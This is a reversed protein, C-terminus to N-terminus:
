STPTVRLMTHCATCMEEAPWKAAGKEIKLSAGCQPCVSQGGQSMREQHYFYYGAAPGALLLLPVLIFHLIPIFVAIIAAGWCMGGFKFARRLREQRSWEVVTVTAEQVKGSPSQVVIPTMIQNM